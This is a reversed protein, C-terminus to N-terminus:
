PAPPAASGNAPHGTPRVVEVSCHAHAAVASSVSGLLLRDFRGLGRAGLFISDAKWRESQNCLVTRAEGSDVLTTTTRAHRALRKACSAVVLEASAREQENYKDVVDGVPPILKGITTARISDAVALLLFETGGPWNREAVASVARDAGSSGDVAVIIRTPAGAQKIRGRAVRVSCPAETLVKQSVSGLVIRGITSRGHSGVIILDPLWEHSKNIIETAPSGFRWEAHVNWENFTQQLRSAARSALDRAADKTQTRWDGLAPSEDDKPELCRDVLEYSSPPPPPSVEAVCLVITEAKPPLGAYKLDDLAADACTSGDYGILLKM